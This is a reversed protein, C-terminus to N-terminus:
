QHLRDVQAGRQQLVEADVAGGVHLAPGQPLGDGGVRGHALGPEEAREASMHAHGVAAVDVHAGAGFRAVARQGLVGQHGGVHAAPEPGCLQAVGPQHRREAEGLANRQELHGTVGHGVGVGEAGQQEVQRGVGVLPLRQDVVLQLQAHGPQQGPFQARGVGGVLLVLPEAQGPGSRHGGLVQQGAALLRLRGLGTPGRRAGLVVRVARDADVGRQAVQDRVRRTLRDQAAM